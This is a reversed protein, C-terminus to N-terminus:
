RNGLGPCGCLSMVFARRTYLRSSSSTGEALFYTLWVHTGHTMSRLPFYMPYTVYFLRPAGQAGFPGLLSGYLRM